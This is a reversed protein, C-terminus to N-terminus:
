YQLTSLGLLSMLNTTFYDIIFVIEAL